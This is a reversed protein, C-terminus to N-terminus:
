DWVAHVSACARRGAEDEIDGERYDLIRLPAVLARLESARLLFCASRPASALGAAVLAAHETTYTEYLLQGGPKLLAILAPILDRDLFNTVVVGDFKGDRLALARVDAVVGHTRASRRVATRVALEVFDVLVVHHGRAALPAAHRGAGGAVDCIWSEAAFLGSREIVWRSPRSEEARKRAYRATWDARSNPEAPPPASM